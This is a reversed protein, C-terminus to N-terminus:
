REGYRGAVFYSVFFVTEDNLYFGDCRFRSDRKNVNLIAVYDRGTLAFRSCAFAHAVSWKARAFSILFV